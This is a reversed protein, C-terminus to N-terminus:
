EHRNVLPPFIKVENPAVPSVGTLRPGAIVYRVGHRDLMSLISFPLNLLARIARDRAEPYADSKEVLREVLRRESNGSM